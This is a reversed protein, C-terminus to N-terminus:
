FLANVHALACGGLVELNYGGELTSVIRGECCEDAIKKIQTTIWGYDAETFNLDALPDLYHGDFGASFFIMEPKFARIRDFWYKSTAARFEKSGAGAPLPINIIHNSKINLQSSETFPYFPYEFSSCYLVREDHEFINETGNGHHVDFDVIAVRKCHYKELAYAAAVAINNFFCFGMARNREAHHGPPRVNCFAANVEKNMVLDVGKVNAGAARLAATLTYPNMFTDADISSLGEKPALNFITDIYAATHVRLLEARTVLPAAFYKLQPNITATTLAKEIVRIRDPQEPHNRSMTHLLCDAHSVIAITM